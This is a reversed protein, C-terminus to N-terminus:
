HQGAIVLRAKAKVQLPVGGAVKGANKNRFVFRFSLARDPEQQQQQLIRASEHEDIVDVTQYDMWSKWEKMKAEMHLHPHNPDIQSLSNRQGFGQTTEQYRTIEFGVRTGRHVAFVPKDDTKQKKICSSVSDECLAQDM